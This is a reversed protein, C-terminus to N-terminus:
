FAIFDLLFGLRFNLFIFFCVKAWISYTQDFAPGDLHVFLAKLDDIDMAKAHVRVKVDQKKLNDMLNKIAPSQVPNGIFEGDVKHYPGERDQMVYYHNIAAHM